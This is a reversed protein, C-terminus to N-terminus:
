LWLSNVIGIHYYFLMNKNIEYLINLLNFIFNCTWNQIKLKSFQKQFLSGTFYKM